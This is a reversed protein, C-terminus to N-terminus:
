YSQITKPNVGYKNDAVSDTIYFVILIIRGIAGTFWGIFPIKWLLDLLLWFGSHGTDHLRRICLSLTVIDYLFVVMDRAFSLGLHNLIFGAIGMIFFGVIFVPFFESRRTRGNFNFINSWAKKFATM